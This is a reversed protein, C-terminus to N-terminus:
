CWLSRYEQAAPVRSEQPDCVISYRTPLVWEVAGVIAIGVIRVFFSYLSATILGVSSQERESQEVKGRAHIHM